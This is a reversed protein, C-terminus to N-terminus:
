RPSVGGRRLYALLLALARGRHSRANKQEGTLEAMTRGLEPVVFIPDYGFGNNGREERGIVGECVGEFLRPECGRALYCLACVFRAAREGEPTASLAALLKKRNAADKSADDVGAYRASHVGPAGGLADVVLGSDDAIAPEGTLDVLARAKKIANARFTEGDELVHYAPLDELGAVEVGLPELMERFERLKGANSTAIRLKVPV